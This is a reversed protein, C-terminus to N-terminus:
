LAQRTVPLGENDNVRPGKLRLITKYSGMLLSSTVGSANAFAPHVTMSIYRVSLARHTSSISHLNKIRHGAHLFLKLRDLFALDTHVDTSRRDVVEDMDTVRTRHDHKIGETAIHLILAILYGRNRVIGIDVILDDLLGDFLAYAAALDRLLVDGLDLLVHVRHVDLRRACVRLRGLLDLAHDIQDLGQDLATVSIDCGVTGNIEIRGGEATISLEAVLVDILQLGTETIQLYGALLALTGGGIKYEPLRLLVALRVPLRRPALTTRAPVGLAADHCRLVAASTEVDMGATLVEDERVVLVLDCLILTRVM